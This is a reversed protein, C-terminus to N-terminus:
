FLLKLAFQINRESQSGTIRGLGTTASYDAFESPVALIKTNTLNLFESRFELKRTEGLSFDKKIGMDFDKLGPGRVTGNGCDGFHGAAVSTFTSPNFWQLGGGNVQSVSTKPLKSILHLKTPQGL